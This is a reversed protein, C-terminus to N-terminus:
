RRTRWKHIVWAYVGVNLVLAFLGLAVQVTHTLGDPYLVPIVYHEVFGGDYGAHGAARRFRNELPTLPCVWGALAIVVAWAASPLHVWAIWRWRLVLLGGLLAFGVFAFHLAVVADALLRYLLALSPYGRGEHVRLTGARVRDRDGTDPLVRHDRSKRRQYSEHFM